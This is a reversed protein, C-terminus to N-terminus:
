WKTQWRAAFILSHVFVGWELNRNPLDQELRDHPATTTTAKSRKIIPVWFRPTREEKERLTGRRRMLHWMFPM